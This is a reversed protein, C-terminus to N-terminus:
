ECDERQLEDPVIYRGRVPDFDLRHQRSVPGKCDLGTEDVLLPWIALEPQSPDAKLVFDLNFLKGACDDSDCDYVGSNDIHSRLSGADKLGDATALLLQQSQLVYGQGVWGNDIRYGYLDAGFQLTSVEGPVGHSGQRDGLRETVVEMGGSSNARLVIFDILGPENPGDADDLNGCVALLSQQVGDVM